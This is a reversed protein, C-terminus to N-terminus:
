REKGGALKRPYDHYDAAGGVTDAVPEVDICDVAPRPWLFARAFGLPYLGRSFLKWAVMRTIRVVDVVARFHSARANPAYIAAIALPVSRVGLRAAEILIESEFVFGHPRDHPVRVRRLLAAPYYRFGSQSDAIRYGAAWSIWFNAVCNAYYRKRPAAERGDLRAGIVICGPHRRAVERLRPIDEPRHQGDGDLTMVGDAGDALARQFGSWLAAAKGRNVAHTLVTVPLGALIQTTGDTSGDDVVIVHECLARARTVVDRITAAENYAPIVVCEHM